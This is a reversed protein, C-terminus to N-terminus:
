NWNTTGKLSIQKIGDPRLGNKIFIERTKERPMITIEESSAILNHHSMKEMRKRDEEGSLGYKECLYDAINMYSGKIVEYPEFSFFKKIMKLTTAGSMAAQRVRIWISQSAKQAIERIQVFHERFEPNRMIEHSFIAIEKSLEHDHQEKIM